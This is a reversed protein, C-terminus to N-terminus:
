YTRRKQFATSRILYIAGNLSFAPQLDQRRPYKQQVETLDLGLYNCLLGDEDIKLNWYPHHKVECVSVVSEAGQVSSINIAAEIDETTRLPSTPQLLMIYEPAQKENDRIWNLTHLVTDISTTTDLALEAPRLFPVEAGYQRGVEAIELDETSLIVRSVNPSNLAAEITWAILPKGALLRINKRPIGKSGGRALIIATIDAM